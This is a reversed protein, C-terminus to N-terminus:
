MPVHYPYSPCPNLSPQQIRYLATLASVQELQNSVKPWTHKTVRSALGRNKWGEGWGPSGRWGGEWYSKWRRWSHHCPEIYAIFGIRDTRNMRIQWDTDESKWINAPYDSSDASIRCIIDSSLINSPYGYRRIVSIQLVDTSSLYISQLVLLPSM